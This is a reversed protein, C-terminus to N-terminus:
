EDGCGELGGGSEEGYKELWMMLELPHHEPMARPKSACGVAFCAALWAVFLAIAIAKM